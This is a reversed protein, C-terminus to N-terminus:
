LTGHKGVFWKLTVNYFVTPHFTILYRKVRPQSINNVFKSMHILTQDAM